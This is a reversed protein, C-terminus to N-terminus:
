GRDTRNYFITGTDTFDTPRDSWGTPPETARPDPEADEAAADGGAQEQKVGDFPLPQEPGWCIVHEGRRHPVVECGAVAQAEAICRWCFESGKFPHDEALPLWSIGERLGEPWNNIRFVQPFQDRRNTQICADAWVQWEERNHPPRVAM